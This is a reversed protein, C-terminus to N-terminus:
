DIGGHQLRQRVAFEAGPQIFGQFAAHDAVNFQKQAELLVARLYALYRHRESRGREWFRPTRLDSILLDDASVNFRRAAEAIMEDGTVFGYGLADAAMRGFELGRSGLQLSIAIVAM